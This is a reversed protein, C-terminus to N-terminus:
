DKYNDEEDEKDGFIIDFDEPYVTVSKQGEAYVIAKFDDVYTADSWEVFTERITEKIMSCDVYEEMFSENQGYIGHDLDDYEFKIDATICNNILNDLKLMAKSTTNAMISIEKRINSLIRITIM